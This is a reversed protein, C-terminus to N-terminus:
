HVTIPTSISDDDIQIAEFRMGFKAHPDEVAHVLRGSMHTKAFDMMAANIDSHQYQESPGNPTSLTIM